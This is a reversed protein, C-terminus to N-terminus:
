KAAAAIGAMKAELAAVRAELTPTPPIPPGNFENALSLMKEPLGPILKAGDFGAPWGIGFRHQFNMYGICGALMVNRVQTEYEAPTPGRGNANNLNQDSAEVYSFRLKSGPELAVDKIDAVGNNVITGPKASWLALRRMGDKVQQISYRKADMNLYHWDFGIWDMSPFYPTHGGGHNYYQGTVTPGAFNCFVPMTPAAAKCAAYLQALVEPKRWGKYSGSPILTVNNPSNDPENSKWRNLDPEDAQMFAIRHPQAAQEAIRDTEPLTIISLGADAAAKEWKAQTTSGGELEAGILTNAGRAKVTAFMSVPQAWVPIITMDSEM